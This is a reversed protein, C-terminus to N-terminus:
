RGAKGNIKEILQALYDDDFGLYTAITPLPARGPVTPFKTLFAAVKEEDTQARDNELKTKYATLNRQILNTMFEGFPAMNICLDDFNDKHIKILTSPVLAEINVGSPKGTLLSERDGAWYDEPSFNITQQKGYLDIIYGRVLGSCVFANYHWYNGEELLKECTNLHVVECVSAVKNLDDDTFAAKELLYRKFEIIMQRSPNVVFNLLLQVTKHRSAYTTFATNFKPYISIAEKNLLSQKTVKNYLIKIM